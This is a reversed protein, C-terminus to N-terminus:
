QTIQCEICIPKGLMLFGNIFEEECILCILNTKKKPEPIEEKTVQYKHKLRFARVRISDITRGMDWVIGETSQNRAIRELLERDENHTWRKYRRPYKLNEM